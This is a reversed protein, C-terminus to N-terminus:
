KATLYILFEVNGNKEKVPSTTTGNVCFGNLEAYEKVQLIVQEHIKPDKVVGKFGSIRGVEFQPKILAVVEGGSHLIEKVKPLILSLSIFSVDISIFNITDSLITKDFYRFNCNEISVVRTDNRLTDVLQKTGVDVAYVKKAGNQLMCDTFGGTSAGVDMCTKDTLNIDFETIAQKLKLGGRSVYPIQETAVKVDATIDVDYGAKTVLKDGISVAGSDILQKAKSRNEVLGTEVM